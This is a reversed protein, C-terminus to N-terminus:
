QGAQDEKFTLVAKGTQHGLSNMVLHVNQLTGVLSFRRSVM